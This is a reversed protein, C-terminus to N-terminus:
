ISSFVSADEWTIADLSPVAIPKAAPYWRPLPLKGNIYKCFEPKPFVTLGM